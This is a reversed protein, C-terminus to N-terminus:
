TWIGPIKEGCDPCKGESIRNQIIWFGRRQILVKGCAPCRTNEDKHGPVNGVYVFRMGEARSIEAARELTGVPTPPLNQLKYQPYFRTFHVPIDTGLNGKMWKALDRFEKDGDNLTPVVLYVIETWIDLKKLLVLTDLVPKLEGAVVDRYYKETFAKLDIKVASLVEALERMPKEQIYGNSIMVSRIGYKNGEVATDVMYESFIVPESYTYAISPAGAERTMEVVRAPPLDLNDAQEPRIQSIQWNQCFQCDVNCGVTAMSFAQTGPLFHFLPKKEIPDIHYTCPRSHVLTYYIGDYNERVGCYGRERDDVVCERPCLLCKVRKHPIKEYWRAEHQYVPDAAHLPSM